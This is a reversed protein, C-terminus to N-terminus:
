EASAVNVSAAHLVIAVPAIAGAKALRKIFTRRKENRIKECGRDSKHNEATPETKLM